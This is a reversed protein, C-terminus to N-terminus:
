LSWRAIYWDLEAFEPQSRKDKSRSRLERKADLCATEVSSLLGEPGSVYIWRSESIARHGNTGEGAKPPSVIREATLYENM